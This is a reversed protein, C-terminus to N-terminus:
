AEGQGATFTMVDGLSFGQKRREMKVSEDAVFTIIRVMESVQEFRILDFHDDRRTAM